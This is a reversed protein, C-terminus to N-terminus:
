VDEGRIKKFTMRAIKGGYQALIETVEEITQVVFPRKGGDKLVIVGEFM